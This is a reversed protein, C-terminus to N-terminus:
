QNWEHLRHINVEESYIYIFLRPCTTQVGQKLEKRGIIRQHM